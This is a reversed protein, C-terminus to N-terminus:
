KSSIDMESNIKGSFMLHDIIKRKVNKLMFVYKWQAEDTVYFLGNQNKERVKVKFYNWEYQNLKHTFLLLYSKVTFNNALELSKELGLEIEDMIIVNFPARDKTEEKNLSSVSVSKGSMKSLNKWIKTALHKHFSSSYLIRIHDGGNCHLFAEIDTTNVALCTQIGLFFYFCCHKYISPM